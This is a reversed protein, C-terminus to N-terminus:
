AHSGRPRSTALGTVAVPTRKEHPKRRDRLADVVHDERTGCAVMAHRQWFGKKKNKNKKMATGTGNNLLITVNEQHHDHHDGAMFKRHFKSGSSEILCDLQRSISEIEFADLLSRDTYIPSSSAQSYGELIAEEEALRMAELKFLSPGPTRRTRMLDYEAMVRGDSGPGRQYWAWAAAKVAALEDTTARPKKRELFLSMLFPASLM